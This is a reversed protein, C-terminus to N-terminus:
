TPRSRRSPQFRRTAALFLVGGLLWFPEWLLLYWRVADEGLSDPVDIVGLKMLLKEVFGAAGYLALGVGALYGLVIRLRRSLRSGWPQVLSLMLLGGVVKLLGTIWTAALMAQDGDRAVDQITQALTGIGFTGGLAWYFSVLAFGFSWVAAAYAAWNGARDKKVARSVTRSLVM